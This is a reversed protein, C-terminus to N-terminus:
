RVVQGGIEVEPWNFHVLVAQEIQHDYDHSFDGNGVAINMQIRAKEGIRVPQDCRFEAPFALPREASVTEPTRPLTYGNNTWHMTQPVSTPVYVKCIGGDELYAFSNELFYDGNQFTLSVRRPRADTGRAEMFMRFCGAGSHSGCPVARAASAALTVGMRLDPTGIQPALALAAAAGLGLCGAALLASLIHQRKM